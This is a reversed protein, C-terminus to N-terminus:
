AAGERSQYRLGARYPRSYLIRLAEIDDKNEELFRQFDDLKSRASQVAAESHGFDILVDIAAEDIIQYLSQAIEVVARRLGPRSFPKLAEAM